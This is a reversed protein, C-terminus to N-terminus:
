WFWGDLNEKKAQEGTEAMINFKQTRDENVTSPGKSLQESRFQGIGTSQHERLKSIAKRVDIATLPISVKSTPLNAIKM